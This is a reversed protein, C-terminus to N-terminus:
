FTTGDTKTGPSFNVGVRLDTHQLFAGSVDPNRTYSENPNDSFADSDFTALVRGSGDLLLVREGSNAMVIGATNSCVQVPSQGFAGTPTGGGFVVLAKGAEISSGAAFVHRVEIAGTAVALKAITFGGIAQNYNASNVIEVFEDQNQGYVGDGNADGELGVNSPDYLVENFILGFGIPCGNTVVAGSDEPCVDDADVIGDADTDTDDDSITITTPEGTAQANSASKLTLVITKDGNAFANNVATLELYGSLQGAPIIIDSSSLMFDTGSQALGSFTFAVRVEKKSTGNLSARVRAVGGNERIRNNVTSDVSVIVVPEIDITECAGLMFVFCGVLLFIRLVSIVINKL